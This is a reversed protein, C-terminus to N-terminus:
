AVEVDIRGDFLYISAQKKDRFVVKTQSKFVTDNRDINQIATVTRNNVKFGPFPTRAQWISIFRAVSENLANKEQQQWSDETPKPYVSALESMQKKESVTGKKIRDILTLALSSAEFALAKRLQGQTIRPAIDLEKQLLIDGEDIGPTIRHATVGTKQQGHLLVWYFPTPGRYAPLLSPHLNVAYEFRQTLEPKLIRHYTAALLLSGGKKQAQAEGEEGYMVPVGLQIAEQDIPPTSFYPYPGQEQRTICLTPAYGARHLARLVANGLGTLACLTINM